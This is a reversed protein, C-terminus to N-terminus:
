KVKIKAKKSWQTYQKEGDGQNIYARIKFYYRKKSKLKKITKTAKNRGKVTVTKAKKMNSKLSYQIQYGDVNSYTYWKCFVSKKKKSKPADYAWSPISTNGYTESDGIFIDNGFTDKVYIKFKGNYKAYGKTGKVKFYKSDSSAYKIQSNPITFYDYCQGDFEASFVLDYAGKKNIDKFEVKGYTVYATSVNVSRSYAKNTFDSFTQTAAKTSALAYFYTKANCTFVAVGVSKFASANSYKLFSDLYIQLKDTTATALTGFTSYTNVGYEPFRSYIDNGDPLSEISDNYKGRFMIETVRVRAQETLTKDLTLKGYNHSSSSDTRYTNIEDIAPKVITDVITGSVSITLMNPTAAQSSVPMVFASVLMILSLFLSLTKKM